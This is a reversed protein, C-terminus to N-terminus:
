RSVGWLAYRNDRLDRERARAIRDVRASTTATEFPEHFMPATSRSVALVPESADRGASPRMVVAISAAIAVAGAAMGFAVYIVNSKKGDLARTTMREAREADLPPAASARVATALTRALDADAHPSGSELADRLRASEAMEEETPPALPDELAQEVLLANVAPDIDTPAFATRLAEVLRAEEDATLLDHPDLRDDTM